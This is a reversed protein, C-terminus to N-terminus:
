SFTWCIQLVAEIANVLTNRLWEIIGFFFVFYSFIHIPPRAICNENRLFALFLIQQTKRAACPVCMVRANTQRRKETQM